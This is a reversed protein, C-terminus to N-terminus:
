GRKEASVKERSLIRSIAWIVGAIVGLVLINIGYGAATVIFALSTEVM